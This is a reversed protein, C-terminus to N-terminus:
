DNKDKQRLATKRKRRGAWSEASILFRFWSDFVAGVFDYVRKLCDSVPGFFDFVRGTKGV